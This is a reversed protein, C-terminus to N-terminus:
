NTFDSSHLINLINHCISGNSLPSETFLSRKQAVARYVRERPLSYARMLPTVTPFPTASVKEESCCGSRSKLEV